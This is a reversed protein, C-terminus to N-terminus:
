LGTVILDVQSTGGPTPRAIVVFAAGDSIRKGLIASVSAGAAAKVKFGSKEGLARYFRLMGAAPEPATFSAAQARCRGQSAGAERLHARPYIPLAETMRAGQALDAVLKNACGPTLAAMRQALTPAACDPCPVLELDSSNGPGSIQAAEARAAAATAPAFDDLPLSGDLPVPDSMVAFRRSQTDLGPDILLPAELALRTAPDIASGEETPAVAGGCGALSAALLLLISARAFSM